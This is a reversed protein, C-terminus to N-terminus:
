FRFRMGVTAITLDRRPGPKKQRRISDRAEDNVVDFQHVGAFLTVEDSVKWALQVSLNMAMTGSHYRGGGEREGYRHEFLRNDGNEAYLDPTLSLTETLEFKRKLGTRVYLWDNPHYGRRLLYYPTVYPNELSQTLRWENVSANSKTARAAATYGELTIWDKLVETTLSWERWGEDFRAFDLSYNWFVGYDIENLPRRHTADRRGGLSSVTFNWLGVKGFDGCGKTDFGVYALTTSVPRDESIRGRSHYATRCDPTFNVYFPVPADEAGCAGAMLAAALIALNRTGRALGRRKRSSTEEM